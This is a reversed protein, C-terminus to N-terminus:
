TIIVIDKEQNNSLKLVDMMDVDKLHFFIDLWKMLKTNEVINLKLNNTQTTNSLLYKVNM